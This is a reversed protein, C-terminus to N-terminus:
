GRRLEQILEIALKEDGNMVALLAHWTAQPFCERLKWPVEYMSWHLCQDYARQAYWEAKALDQARNHKHDARWLYKLCNGQTFSMDQAIDICEIDGTHRYHGPNIASDVDEAM